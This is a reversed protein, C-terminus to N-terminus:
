NASALVGDLREYSQAMGGTMGTALAADRLARSAYSITLTMTTKGGAETFVTTTLAEPMDGDEFAETCVLRAPAAIERYAGALAFQRSSEDNRWVYRFRGGVRLDIECVPMSWGPPGLLWRKVLAPRTHCDFVLHMPADFIRTCVVDFDNPTIVALEHPM